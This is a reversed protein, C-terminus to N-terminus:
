TRARSCRAGPAASPWRTSDRRSAADRLAPCRMCATVNRLRARARSGPAPRRSRPWRLARAAWCYAAHTRRTHAGSAGRARGARQHAVGCRFPHVESCQDTANLRCFREYGPTTLVLNELECAGKVNEPTFISAARGDKWKFVFTVPEGMERRATSGAEGGVPDLMALAGSQADRNESAPLHSIDWDYTSDESFEIYSGAFGGVLLLVWVSACFTLMPRRHILPVAYDAPDPISFKM